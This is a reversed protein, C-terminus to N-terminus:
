ENKIGKQLLLRHDGRSYHVFRYEEGCVKCTIEAVDLSEPAPAEPTIPESTPIHQDQPSIPVSSTRREVEQTPTSTTVTEPETEPEKAIEPMKERALRARELEEPESRKYEEPLYALVWRKSMGTAESIQQPSWKTLKAIESLIETKEQASVQRRCVNVILRALHFKVPDKKKDIDYVVSAPWSPDAKLRHLGDIVNGSRDMLVTSIRGVREASTKLFATEDESEPIPTKSPEAVALERPCKKLLAKYQYKRVMCEEIAKGTLTCDQCYSKTYETM